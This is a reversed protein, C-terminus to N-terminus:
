KYFIGDYQASSPEISFKATGVSYSESGQTGLVVATTTIAAVGVGISTWFWWTKYFPTKGGKDDKTGPDPDVVVIPKKVPIPKLTAMWSKNGVEAVQIKDEVTLFGEREVRFTYRGPKLKMTMPAPGIEKDNIFITSDQVNSEVTFTVRAVEAPKAPEPLKGFLKTRGAGTIALSAAKADGKQEYRSLEKAGPVDVLIMSLAGGDARTYLVQQVKYAGGIVALCDADMDLCEHDVMAELLDLDPAEVIRYKGYTHLQKKLAARAEDREADSLMEGDVNLLLLSTKNQARVTGTGLLIVAALVMGTVTALRRM